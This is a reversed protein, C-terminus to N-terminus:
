VVAFRLELGSQASADESLQTFFDAGSKTDRWQQGDFRYHYGGSRAALWSEHLPKQWNVVIQSRNAFGITVVGGSRQSDLDADTADNIRDCGHEVASLLQEALGIYELDTM